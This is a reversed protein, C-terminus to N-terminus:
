GLTYLKSKAYEINKEKFDRNECYKLFTEEFENSARPDLLVEKINENKMEYYIVKPIKNTAGEYNLDFHTLLKKQLYDIDVCVSFRYEYEHSFEKRKFYEFPIDFIGNSGNKNSYEEFNINWDYNVAKDIISIPRFPIGTCFQGNVTILPQMTKLISKKIIEKSIKIRVGSKNISYIRWMADSELTNNTWSQAYRSNKMKKIISDNTEKDVKNYEESINNNKCEQESKNDLYEIFKNAAVGEYVDDQLPLHTLYLRKNEILDIFKEFSMYKYLYEEM